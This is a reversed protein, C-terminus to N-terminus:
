VCFLNSTYHFDCPPVLVRWLSHTVGWTKKPGFISAALPAGRKHEFKRTWKKNRRLKTCERGVHRSGVQSVVTDEALNNPLSLVKALYKM